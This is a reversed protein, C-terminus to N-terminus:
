LFAALARILVFLYIYAAYSFLATSKEFVDWLASRDKKGLPKPLSGLMSLGCTSRKHNYPIYVVDVILKSETREREREREGARQPNATFTDKNNKTLKWLTCSSLDDAEHTPDREVAAARAVYVCVCMCMLSQKTIESATNGTDQTKIEVSTYVRRRIYVFIKSADGNEYLLFRPIHFPILESNIELPSGCHNLTM